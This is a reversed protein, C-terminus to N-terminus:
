KGLAEALLTAQQPDSGCSFMILEECGAQEFASVYQNVTDPDTAASAAIQGAIEDGLWAYYHRLDEEAIREADPGLAYYAISVLKPSGERAAASWAERVKPANETFQDPGVAAQIWGDFRAAREFSAQAGGGVLVQPPNEVPPGIAGAYGRDEGAWIRKMEDLMSDLREGRGATSLGGAEYDDDRAGIALGLVLRGGSLAQLSAAEKAALAANVRYPLIMIATTLRIRETVAAAASLAVFPDYSPYVLRDLTGLSPFGRAEAERAFGVLQEGTTGPVANPLGIGVDMTM